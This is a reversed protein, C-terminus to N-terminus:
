FSYKAQATLEYASGVAAGPANKYYNGLSLFGANAMMSFGHGYDHTAWVDIETGLNSDAGGAGEGAGPNFACGSNSAVANFPAACMLTVGDTTKTKSLLNAQIGVSTDDAPQLTLGIRIDTLNGFGFVGMHGAYDHQNFFLPQYHDNQTASSGDNGTDMHSALSLRAKMFDAWTAGVEVDYMSGGFNVNATGTGNVQKGSQWVADLRYDIMSTDGKVHIGYSTLDWPTTGVMSPAFPAYNATPGETDANLQLVFLEAKKLFDPLNKFSGYLGYFVTEADTSNAPFAAVGLDSLVGGGVDLDLFDWSFRGMVGEVNYPNANWDNKSFVLGDGYDIAQRGTRLSFMDSVKWWLWAEYVQMSNYLGAATGPAAPTGFGAGYPSPNTPVSSAGGWVFYNLMDVYAQLKDSAIANVHFQDRQLWNQQQLENNNTFGFNNDYTFRQLMEGGFKFETGKDQAQAVVGTMTVLALVM